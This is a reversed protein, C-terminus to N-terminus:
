RDGANDQILSHISPLILKEFMADMQEPTHRMDEEFWWRLLMLFTSSVFNAIVSIPVAPNSNDTIRVRINHEILKTVQRELERTHMESEAGWMFAQLLRRQQHVHRFLELSPLLGDPRGDAHNALASMDHILRKIQDMMLSQKDPYHAYFTSRGVDARDLIDQVTIAQFRKELMLEVLANGLLQRTKRSRRDEKLQEV